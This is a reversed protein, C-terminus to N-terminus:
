VVDWNFALLEDYSFITSGPRPFTKLQGNSEYQAQMTALGNLEEIESLVVDGLVTRLASLEVPVIVYEVGEFVKIYSMVNPDISEFIQQMTPSEILANQADYVKFKERLLVAQAPLTAGVDQKRFSLYKTKRGYESLFPKINQVGFNSGDMILPYDNPIANNPYKLNYALMANVIIDTLEQTWNASEVIWGNAWKLPIAEEQGNKDTIPESWETVITQLQSRPISVVDFKELGTISVEALAIAYKHNEM